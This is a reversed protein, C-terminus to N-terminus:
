LGNNHHNTNIIRFKALKLAETCFHYGQNVYFHYMSNAKEWAHRLRWSYQISLRFGSKPGCSHPLFSSRKTSWRQSNSRASTRLVVSSRVVVRFPPITLIKHQLKLWIFIRLIRYIDFKMVNSVPLPIEGPIFGLFQQIYLLFIQM